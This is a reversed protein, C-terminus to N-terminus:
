ARTLDNIFIEREEESMQDWVLGQKSCLWRLQDEGSPLPKEPLPQGLPAEPVAPPSEVEKLFLRHYEEEQLHTKLLRSILDFIEEI